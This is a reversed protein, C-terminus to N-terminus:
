MRGATWLPGLAMRVPLRLWRAKTLQELGKPRRSKNFTSETVYQDAEVAPRYMDSGTMGQGGTPGSM